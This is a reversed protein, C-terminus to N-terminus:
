RQWPWERVAPKSVEPQQDIAVDQDPSDVQLPRLDREFADEWRRDGPDHWSRYLALNVLTRLAENPGVNM